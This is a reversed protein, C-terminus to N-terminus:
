HVTQRRREKDRTPSHLVYQEGIDSLWLTIGIVGMSSLNSILSTSVASMQSINMAEALHPMSPTNLTALRLGITAFVSLMTLVLFCIPIWMYKRHSRLCIVWARWIVIGDSLAYNIYVSANFLPSWRLVADTQSSFDTENTAIQIYVQMRDAVYAICYLWYAASLLYMFTTISFLVKHVKTKLGRQLLMRTSMFNLISYAGFVFTQAVLGLIYYLVAQGSSTVFSFSIHLLNGWDGCGSASHPENETRKDQKRAVPSNNALAAMSYSRCSRYCHPYFSDDPLNKIPSVVFAAIRFIITLLVTIATVALFGITIWLYKRQNRVCIIWARWVVVGDSLVYNILTVANFVPSWETVATHDPIPRFPHIALAIYQHMRDVGDAISYAWFAVSLLYMFATIGFMVQNVRTKLKRERRFATLWRAVMWFCLFNYLLMRTSLWILITYAGFFFTQVVLGFMYYMVARGTEDLTTSSATM